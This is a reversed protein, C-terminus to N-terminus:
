KTFGENTGDLDYIVNSLNTNPKFQVQKIITAKPVICPLTGSMNNYFVLSWMRYHNLFIFGFEM